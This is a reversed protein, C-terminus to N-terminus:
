KRCVTQRTPRLMVACPFAVPENRLRKINALSSKPKMSIMAFRVCALLFVFQLYDDFIPIVTTNRGMPVSATM